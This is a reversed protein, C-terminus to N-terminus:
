AGWRRVEIKRRQGAPPIAVKKRRRTTLETGAAQIGAISAACASMVLTDLLHNEAGPKLAWQEVVRGKAEVTTPYEALLHDILMEHHGHHFTLAGPDGIATNLRAAITTKWFNSDFMV